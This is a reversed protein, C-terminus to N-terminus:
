VGSIEFPTKETLQKLLKEISESYQTGKWQISSWIKSYQILQIYERKWKPYLTAIFWARRYFIEEPEHEIREIYHTIGQHEVEM